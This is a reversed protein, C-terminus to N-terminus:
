GGKLYLKTLDNYCLFKAKDIKSFSFYSIKKFKKVFKVQKKVEFDRLSFYIFFRPLIQIFQRIKSKVISKQSYNTIYHIQIFACKRM